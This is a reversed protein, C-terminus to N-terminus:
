ETVTVAGKISSNLQDHYNYTGPKTFKLSFTQNTALSGSELGAAIGVSSDPAIQHAKADKNVWVVTDNVKATVASPSFANNVISVSITKPAAAPAAALTTLTPEHLSFRAKDAAIQNKRAETMKLGPTLPDYDNRIQSGDSYGNQESAPTPDTFKKLPNTLYVRVEDGDALGDDDYDSDQPSTQEVFEDYNKLGDQDPDADDSCETATCIEVGFHQQLFVKPLRSEASNNEADKNSGVLFYALAGLAAVVLLGGIVYTAKSHWISPHEEPLQPAAHSEASAAVGGARAASAATREHAIGAGAVLQGGDEHPMVVFSMDQESPLGTLHSDNKPNTKDAM